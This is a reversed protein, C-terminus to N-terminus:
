GNTQFLLRYLMGYLAERTAWSTFFRGAICPVQTWVRPRSSGRSFPIALWELIRAQLSCLGHPWLSNSVVSCSESECCEMYGNMFYERQSKLLFGIDMSALHPLRRLKLAEHLIVTLIEVTRHCLKWNQFESCESFQLTEAKGYTM